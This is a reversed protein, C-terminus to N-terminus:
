ARPHKACRRTPGEGTRPGPCDWPASLNEELNCPRLTPDARWNKAVAVHCATARAEPRLSHVSTVQRRAKRSLLRSKSRDLIRIMFAVGARRLTRRVALSGPPSM